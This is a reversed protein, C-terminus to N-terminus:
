ADFTAIMDFVIDALEQPRTLFPSHGTNIERINWEVGSFKVMMEQAIPLITRDDTARIYGRRNNYVESGWASPPSPSSLAAQSHIKLNDVAASAKGSPVDHYFVETPNEVDLQGTEENIIVWPDFKGGLASLLSDGEQALFAAIFVLGIIGGGNEERETKSLGTAAAAGPCGGYSHMLLVVDKGDEILPLLLKERIAAADGTVSEKKPDPSGVSPLQVSKTPYGASEFLDLLEQYHIPSHWAGPVLAIYPKEESM